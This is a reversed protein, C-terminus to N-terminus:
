EWEEWSTTDENWIYFEGDNPHPTPPNWLCTDENLIWSAYEQPPIFADKIKDYTYGVGAFNKRLAVGDDQTHSNPAYHVGGRTNYSTQVWNFDGDYLKNLYNIGFAEEEVGHENLLYKNDIVHIRQVIGNNDVRAFHSM